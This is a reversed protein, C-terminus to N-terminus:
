RIALSDQSVGIMNGMDDITTSLTMSSPVRSEKSLAVIDREVRSCDPTSDLM